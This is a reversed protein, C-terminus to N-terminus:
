SALLTGLERWKYNHSWPCTLQKSWIENERDIFELGFRDMM